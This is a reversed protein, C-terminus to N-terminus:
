GKGGGGKRTGAVIQRHSKGVHKVKGFPTAWPTSTNITTTTRTATKPLKKLQLAAQQRDSVNDTQRHTYRHTHTHRTLTHAVKKARLKEQKKHAANPMHYRTSRSDSPVPQREQRVRSKYNNNTTTVTTTKRMAASADLSVDTKAHLTAQLLQM